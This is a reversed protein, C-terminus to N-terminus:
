CISSCRWASSESRSTEDNLLEIMSKLDNLNQQWQTYYWGVGAITLPILISSILQPTYPSLLFRLINRRPTKAPEPSATPEISDTM